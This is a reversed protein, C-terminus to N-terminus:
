EKPAVFLAKDVYNLVRTTETVMGGRVARVHMLPWFEPAIWHEGAEDIVVAVTRGQYQDFRQFGRQSQWASPLRLSAPRHLLQGAERVKVMREPNSADENNKWGGETTLLSVFTNGTAVKTYHYYHQGHDRATLEMAILNGSADRTEQEITFVDSLAFSSPLSDAAPKKATATRNGIYAGTIVVIALALFAFLIKTM